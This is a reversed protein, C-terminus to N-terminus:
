FTCSLTFNMRLGTEDDLFSNDEDNLDECHIKPNDNLILDAERLFFLTVLNRDMSLVCIDNRVVLM